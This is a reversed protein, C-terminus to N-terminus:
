YQVGLTHMLGLVKPSKLGGVMTTDSYEKWAKLFFLQEFQENDKANLIIFKHITVM